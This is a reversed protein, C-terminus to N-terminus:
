ESPADPCRLALGAAVAYEPGAEQNEGGNQIPFAEDLPPLREIRIGTRESLFADLGKLKGGTGCLYGLRVPTGKSQSSFYRFLKQLEDALDELDHRLIEHVTGAIETRTVLEQQSGFQVGASPTGAGYEKILLEAEPHSIELSNMIRTTFEEGGRAITRTLRLDGRNLVVAESTMRGINIVGVAADTEQGIHLGLRWLAMPVIDVAIVEFGAGALLDLLACVYSSRATAVLVESRGEKGVRVEGLRVYDISADSVDYHLYSEAEWRLTEELERESGALTLTRVDVKGPPVTIVIRRGSFGGSRLAARLKEIITHPRQDAIRMLSEEFTLSTCAALSAGQSGFHLQVMKATEAQFDIGIPSYGKRKAM